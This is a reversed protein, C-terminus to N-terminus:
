SCNEEQPFHENNNFDLRATPSSSGSKCSNLYNLPHLTRSNTYLVCLCVDCLPHQFTSTYVQTLRQVTYITVKSPSVTGPSWATRMADLPVVLTWVTAAWIVPQFGLKKEEPKEHTVTFAQVSLGKPFSESKLNHM